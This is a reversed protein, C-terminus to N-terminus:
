SFTVLGDNTRILENAAPQVDALPNNVRVTTIKERDVDRALTQILDRHLTENPNLRGIGSVVSQRIRGLMSNVDTGSRVTVTLDIPQLFIVGGTVYIVDAADRWFELEATVAAVMADNSNGAADAVYVTVVGSDDVTVTVRDVGSVERAGFEIADITGRAQTLFFGRVRDRLDEDSEQEVGGVFQQSNTVTISADFIVGGVPGGLIRNLAGADVNGTKGALVATAKVGTKTLDGAGFSVDEDTTFTAFNGADDPTSALRSGAAFVGAGAATTPRSLTVTGLASAGPDRTVGRDEALATLDDGKAGDLFCARARRNAFAVVAMAMTACGALIADTADGPEVKLTPRVTQLTALGIDYVEQWTPEAM